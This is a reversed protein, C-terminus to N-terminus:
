EDDVWEEDYPSVTVTVLHARTWRFLPGERGTGSVRVDEAGSVPWSFRLLVTSVNMALPGARSVVVM